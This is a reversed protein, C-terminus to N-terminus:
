QSRLSAIWGNALAPIGAQAPIVIVTGVGVTERVCTLAKLFWAMAGM